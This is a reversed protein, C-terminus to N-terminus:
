RGNKPTKLREFNVRFYCEQKEIPSLKEMTSAEHRLRNLLDTVKSTYKDSFTAMNIVALKDEVEVAFNLWREVENEMLRGKHFETHSQEKPLEGLWIIGHDRLGHRQCFSM